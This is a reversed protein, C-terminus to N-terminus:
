MVQRQPMQINMRSTMVGFGARDRGQDSHSDQMQMMRPDNAGGARQVHGDLQLNQLDMSRASVISDLMAKSASATDPRAPIAAPPPEAAPAAGSQDIRVEQGPKAYFSLGQADFSDDLGAFSSDTLNDFPAVESSRKSAVIIRQVAAQLEAGFVARRSDPVYLAPVRDVCAPLAEIDDDVCACNLFGPAPPTARIAQMLQMCFPCLTSYLLLPTAPTTM